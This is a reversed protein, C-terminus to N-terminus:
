PKLPGDLADTRTTQLLKSTDICAVSKHAYSSFLFYPGPKDAALRLMRQYAEALGEASEIWVADEQSLRGSFVDFM